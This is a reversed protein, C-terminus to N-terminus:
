GGVRVMVMRSRLIRCYALKPNLDGFWYKGVEGPVMKVLIKYPSDNLINGLAVDLDNQPDSVYNEPTKASARQRQQQVAMQRVVVRRATPSTTNNTANRSNARSLHKSPGISPPPTASTLSAKTTRTYGTMYRPTPQMIKSNPSQKLLPASKKRLLSTAKQGREPLMDEAAFFEDFTGSLPGIRAMLDSKKSSFEKKLQSWKDSLDKVCDIVRSDNTHSESVQKLEDLLEDIKPEYYRYRTDLDILLAQLDTRSYAGDVIRANSPDGRSIVDKTALLLVDLEEVVILFEELKEAEDIAKHKTKLLSTLGCLAATIEARQGQFVEGQGQQDVVNLMSDLENVSVQLCSEIDRSLITLEAKASALRHETPVSSLPCSLVIKLDDHDAGHNLQTARCIRIAIVRDKMNGIQSLVNKVKRAIENGRRSNNLLDFTEQHQTELSAWAKLLSTRRNHVSTRIEDQDLGIDTLDLELGDKTIFIRSEMAEFAQVTPRMDNIKQKLIDLEAKSEKEDNLCIDTSLETIADSCHDVWTKLDNAAKAHIQVKRIFVAQKKESGIINTLQSLHDKINSIPEQVSINSYGQLELDKATLVLKEIRRYLLRARKESDLNSTQTRKCLLDMSEISGSSFGSIGINSMRDDITSKQHHIDTLVQEAHEHFTTYLIATSANNKLVTLNNLAAHIKNTLAIHRERACSYNATQLPDEKIDAADISSGTKELHESAAHIRKQINELDADKWSGSKTLALIEEDLGCLLQNEVLSLRRQCNYWEGVKQSFLEVESIDKGLLIWDSEMGQQIDCMAEMNEVKSPIMSNFHSCLQNFQTQQDKYSSSIRSLSSNLMEFRLRDQEESQGTMFGCTQKLAPLSNRTNCLFTRLLRSKETYTNGDEIKKRLARIDLAHKELLQQLCDFKGELQQSIDILGENDLSSLNLKQTTELLLQIRTLLDVVENEKGNQLRNCISDNEREFQQIDEVTLEEMSYMNAKAKRITEVREDSWDCLRIADGLYEKSRKHLQLIDRYANLQGDLEEALLVLSNRKDSVMSQIDENAKTNSVQDITLTSIPYPIRNATSTVLQMIRENTAQVHTTLERNNDDPYAKTEADILDMQLSKADHIVMETQYLFDMVNLRQEVVNRAFTMRKMLDEFLQECHDQRSELYSPLTVRSTNDLDQFTDVSRTFQGQDFEVMKRELTLLQQVIAEKHKEKIMLSERRLLDEVFDEEELTWRASSKLFEDLQSDTEKLWKITNSFEEEWTVRRTLVQLDYSKKALLHTLKDLTTLTTLTIGITTTDAPSLDKDTRDPGTLTKVHSRLRTMDERDFSEIEKELLSHAKNFIQVQELTAPSELSTLPDPLSTSNIKEVQVDIWYRIRAAEQFWVRIEEVWTRVLENKKSISEFKTSYSTDATAKSEETDTILLDNFNLKLTDVMNTTKDVYGELEDIDHNTTDVEGHAFAFGRRFNSLTVEAKEFEDSLTTHLRLLHMKQSVVRAHSRWQPSLEEQLYAQLLFMDGDTLAQFESQLSKFNRDYASYDEEAAQLPHLIKIIQQQQQQILQFNEDGSMMSSTYSGNDNHQYTSATTNDETLSFDMSDISSLSYKSTRTPVNLMLRHQLGNLKATINSVRSEFEELDNPIETGDGYKLITTKTLKLQQLSFTSTVTTSKDCDEVKETNTQHFPKFRQIDSHRRAIEDETPAFLYPVIELLYSVIASEDEKDDLSPDFLIPIQYNEYIIQFAASLQRHPFLESILSPNHYHIIALLYTGSKWSAVSFDKLPSILSACTYDSLVFTSWSFLLKRVDEMRTPVCQAHITFSLERNHLITHIISYAQHQNQVIDLLTMLQHHDGSKYASIDIINQPFTTSLPIILNIENLLLYIDQENLIEFKHRRYLSQILLVFSPLDRLEELNSLNFHLNIWNMLCSQKITTYKDNVTNFPTDPIDRERTM